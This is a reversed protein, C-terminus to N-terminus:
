TLEQCDGEYLIEGEGPKRVVYTYGEIGTWDEPDEPLKFNVHDVQMAASTENKARVKVTATVMQQVEVEYEELGGQPAPEAHGDHEVSFGAAALRAELIRVANDANVTNLRETVTVSAVYDQTLVRGPPYGEMYRV